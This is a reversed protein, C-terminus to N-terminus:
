LKYCEDVFHYNLVHMGDFIKISGVLRYFWLDGMDICILPYLEDEVRKFLLMFSTINPGEVQNEMKQLYRYCKTFFGRM